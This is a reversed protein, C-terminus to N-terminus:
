LAPLHPKLTQDGDSMAELRARFCNNLMFSFLLQRQGGSCGNEMTQLLVSCHNLQSILVSNNMSSSKKLLWRKCSHTRLVVLGRHWTSMVYAWLDLGLILFEIKLTWINKTLSLQSYTHLEGFIHTQQLALRWLSRVSWIESRASSYKLQHPNFVHLSEHHCCQGSWSLLETGLTTWAPWPGRIILGQMYKTCFYNPKPLCKKCPKVVCMRPNTNILNGNFKKTAQLISAFIDSIHTPAQAWLPAVTNAEFVCRNMLSM